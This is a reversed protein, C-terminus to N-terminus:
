FAHRIFLTPVLLNSLTKRSLLTTHTLENFKCMNIVHMHLIFVKKKLRRLESPKTPGLSRKKTSLYIYSYLLVDSERM